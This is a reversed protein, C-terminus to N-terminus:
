KLLEGGGPLPTSQVQDADIRLPISVWAYKDYGTDSVDPLRLKFSTLPVDFLIRGQETQAPAVNRFLGMWNNVGTGDELEQYTQGKPSELQLLPVSVDSGGGNTVSLTILFFRQQPVRLQFLEGLQTRWATEVVVYTLPGITVREGMDYNIKGADQEHCGALLCLAMVPVLIRSLRM